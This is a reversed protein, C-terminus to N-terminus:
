CKDVTANKGLGSCSLLVHKLENFKPARLICTCQRSCSSFSHKNSYFISTLKM